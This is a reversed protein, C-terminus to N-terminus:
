VMMLGIAYGAAFCIVLLAISGGEVEALENFNLPQVNYNSNLLQTNM